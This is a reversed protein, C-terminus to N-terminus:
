QKIVVREKIFCHIACFIMRLHDTRFKWTKSTLQKRCKRKTESMIMYPLHALVDQEVDAAIRM